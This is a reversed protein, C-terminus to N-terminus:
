EARATLVLGAVLECSELSKGKRVEKIKLKKKTISVLFNEKNRYLSIKAHLSLKKSNMSWEKYHSLIEPYKIQWINLFLFRDRLVEGEHTM